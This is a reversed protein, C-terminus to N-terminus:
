CLESFNRNKVTNFQWMNKINVRSNSYNAKGNTDYEILYLKHGCDDGVNIGISNIKM